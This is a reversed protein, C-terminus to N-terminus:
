NVSNQGTSNNSTTPYSATSHHTSAQDVSGHNGSDGGAANNNRPTVPPAVRHEPHEARALHTCLLLLTPVLEGGANASGQEVLVCTLLIDVEALRVKVMLIEDTTMMSSFSLILQLATDLQQQLLHSPPPAM